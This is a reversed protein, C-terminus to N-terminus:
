ATCIIVTFFLDKEAVTADSFEELHNLVKHMRNAQLLPLSNPPFTHVASWTIVSLISLIQVSKIEPGLTCFRSKGSVGGPRTKLSPNERTEGPRGM